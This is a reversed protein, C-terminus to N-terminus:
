QPSDALRIAFPRFAEGSLHRAISCRLACFLYRQVRARRKASAGPHHAQQWSDLATQVLDVELGSHILLQDIQDLQDRFQEYDKPGYVTPFVPRLEDQIPIMQAHEGTLNM